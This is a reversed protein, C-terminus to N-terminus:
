EAGLEFRAFRRVQAPVGADNLLQEVSKSPDKVYPQRLLVIEDLFKEVKGDVIKAKINDPKNDDALQATYIKREADTVDSPVEESTVYRPSSAAIQLALDHALDAPASGVELMVGIRGGGHVYSTIYDGNTSEFRAVRRLQINEGITAIAETLLDKVARGDVQEALLADTADVKRDVALKALQEALAQFRETRAVFDTECNLEIMAGVTDDNELHAMIVGQNATRDQKKSAKALGRERLIQVAGDFSGDAEKLANRSELIGAGTAERLEKVMATTIEAM